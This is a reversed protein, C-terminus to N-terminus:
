FDVGAGLTADIAVPWPDLGLSPRGRVTYRQQALAVTVRVAGEAFVPGAIRVRAAGEGFLGFWVRDGPAVPVLEYVVAHLVGGQLGACGSVRVAGLTGVCLGAFLTTLGFGTASDANTVPVVFAGATAHWPGEHRSRFQLMVAPALPTSGVTVGARASLSSPVGRPATPVERVIVRPAVVPCEPPAPCERQAPCEPTPPCVPPRDPVLPADPDIALAVALGVADLLAACTETRRSLERVARTDRERATIRANWGNSHRRFRVTLLRAADSAFPDRGMRRRVDATLADLSPCSADDTPDVELHVRPAREQAWAACPLLSSAVVIVALGIRM